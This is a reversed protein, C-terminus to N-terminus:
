RMLSTIESTHGESRDVGAMPKRLQDPHGAVAAGYPNSRMGISVLGLRYPKGAAIAQASQFVHPLAELTELVSRDDAAHVIATTGHTVFDCAASEPPHRNLETFNTLMGGGVATGPFADRAVEVVAEPALGSPWAGDPQHNKM